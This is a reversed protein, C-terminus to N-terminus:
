KLANVHGRVQTLVGRPASGANAIARDTEKAAKAFDHSGVNASVIIMWLGNQRDLEGPMTTAQVAVQSLLPHADTSSKVPITQIDQVSTMEPQPVQVQVQYSVGSRPDRWYNPSVFRSSTTAAGVAAGVDNATVGLQGAIVRDVHVNVTPYRLPEEFQVDRLEASRALEHQVGFLTLTSMPM